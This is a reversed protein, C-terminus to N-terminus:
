LNTLYIYAFTLCQYQRMPSHLLHFPPFHHLFLLHMRAMQKIYPLFFILLLLTSIDSTSLKEFSKCSADSSIRDLKSLTFSCISEILSISENEPSAALSAFPYKLSNCKVINSDKRPSNSSRSSFKFCCRWVNSDSTSELSVATISLS